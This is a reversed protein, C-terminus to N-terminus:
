FVNINFVNFRCDDENNEQVGGVYMLAGRWKKRNTPCDSFCDGHGANIVQKETFEFSRRGTHQCIQFNAYTSLYFLTRMRVFFICKLNNTSLM